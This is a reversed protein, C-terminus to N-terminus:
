VFNYSGLRHPVTVVLGDEEVRAAINRFTRALIDENQPAALQVRRRQGAGVEVADCAVRHHLDGALRPQLTIVEYLM